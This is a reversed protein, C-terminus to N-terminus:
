QGPRRTAPPSSCLVQPPHSTSELRFSGGSSMVEPIAFVPSCAALEGRDEHM